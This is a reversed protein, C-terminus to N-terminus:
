AGERYPCNPDADGTPVDDHNGGTQRRFSCGPCDGERYARLAARAREYGERSVRVEAVNNEGGISLWAPNRFAELAGALAEARERLRTIEDQLEERADDAGAHLSCLFLRGAQLQCGCDRKM